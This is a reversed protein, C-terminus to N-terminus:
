SRRRRQLAPSYLSVPLSVQLPQLSPRKWGAGVLESPFCSWVLQGAHAAPLCWGAALAVPQESQWAVVNLSASPASVHLAHM